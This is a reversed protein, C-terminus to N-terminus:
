ATAVTGNLIGQEILVRMLTALVDSLEDNTASNCNLGVDETYNIMAFVPQTTRVDRINRNGTAVVVM